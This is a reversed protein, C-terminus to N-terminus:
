MLDRSGHGTQAELYLSNFTTDRHCSDEKMLVQPGPEATQGFVLSIQLDWPHLGQGSSDIRHHHSGCPFLLVCCQQTRSLASLVAPQNTSASTMLNQECAKQRSEQIGALPRGSRDSNPLEAVGSSVPATSSLLQYCLAHEQSTIGYQRATSIHKKRM